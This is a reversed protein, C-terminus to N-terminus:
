VDIFNVSQIFEEEDINWRGGLSWFNDWQNEEIFRSEM